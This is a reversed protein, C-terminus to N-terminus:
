MKTALQQFSTQLNRLSQDFSETKEAGVNPITHTKGFNLSSRIGDSLSASRFTSLFNGARGMSPVHAMQTVKARAATLADIM